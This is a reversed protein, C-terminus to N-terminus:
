SVEELLQWGAPFNAPTWINNDIISQYIYNGIKVKDGIKYPTKEQAWKEILYDPKEILAYNIKDIEPNKASIHNKTALYINGNYQVKEGMKYNNEAKWFPILFIIYYIKKDNYNTLIQQLTSEGNLIEDQTILGRKFILNQVIFDEGVHPSPIAIDTEIIDPLIGLDSILMYEQYYGDFLLFMNRDSYVKITSTKSDIEEYKIM